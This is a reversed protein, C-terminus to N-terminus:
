DTMPRPSFIAESNIPLPPSHIRQAKIACRQHPRQNSALVETEEQAIKHHNNMAHEALASALADSNIFAQVHPLGPYFDFMIRNRIEVANGREFRQLATSGNLTLSMRAIHLSIVCQHLKVARTLRVRLPLVASCRKSRPLATSIRLPIIEVQSQWM